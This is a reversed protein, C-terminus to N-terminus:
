MLRMKRKLESKKMSKEGNAVLEEQRKWFSIFPGAYQTDYGLNIYNQFRIIKKRSQCWDSDAPFKSERVFSLPPELTVRLGALREEGVFFEDLEERMLGLATSVIGSERAVSVFFVKDRQIGFDSRLCRVFKVLAKAVKEQSLELYHKLRLFGTPRDLIALIFSQERGDREGDNQTSHHVTVAHVAIGQERGSADSRLRKDKRGIMDLANYCSRKAFVVLDPKGWVRSKGPRGWRARQQRVKGEVKRGRASPAWGYECESPEFRPMAPAVAMRLVHVPYLSLRFAEQFVKREMDSMAARKKRTLLILPAHVSNKKSTEINKKVIGRLAKGM